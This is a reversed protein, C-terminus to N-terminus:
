ASKLLNLVWSYDETNPEWAWTKGHAGFHKRLARRIKKPDIAAKTQKILDQLTVATASKPEAQATDSKPKSVRKAKAPKETKKLTSRPTITAQFHLEGNEDASYVTIDGPARQEWGLYKGQLKPLVPIPQSPRRANQYLSSILPM